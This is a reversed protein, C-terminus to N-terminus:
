MKNLMLAFKIFEIALSNRIQPRLILKKKKSEPEKKAPEDDLRSAKKFERM